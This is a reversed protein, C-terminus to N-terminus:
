QHDSGSKGPRRRDDVSSRVFELIASVHTQWQLDDTRELCIGVIGKVGLDKTKDVGTEAFFISREAM